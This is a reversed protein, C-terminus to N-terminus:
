VQRTLKITQMTDQVKQTQEKIRHDLAKVQYHPDKVLVQKTLEENAIFEDVLKSLEQYGEKTTLNSKEFDINAAKIDGVEAKIKDKEKAM